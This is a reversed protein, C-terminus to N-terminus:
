REMQAAQGTWSMRRSNIVRVVYNLTFIFNNWHMGHLCIPPTSAYKQEVKLRPAVCVQFTLKMGWTSQSGHFTDGHGVSYTAPHGWLWDPHKLPSFLTSGALYQVM